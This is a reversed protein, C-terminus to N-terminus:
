TVEFMFAKFLPPNTAPDGNHVTIYYTGSILDMPIWAKATTGDISFWAFSLRQGEIPAQGERFIMIRRAYKMRGEPDTITFQTGPPGSTPSIIPEATSKDDVLFPGVLVEHGDPLRFYVVYDGSKMSEPLMGRATTYPRHTILDVVTERGDKKFVAMSGDVLRASPTDIITFPHPAEAKTPAIKIPDGQGNFSEPRAAEASNAAFALLLMLVILKLSVKSMSSRSRM